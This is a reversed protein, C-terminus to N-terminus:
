RREQKPNAANERANGTNTFRGLEHRIEQARIIDGARQTALLERELFAVYQARTM